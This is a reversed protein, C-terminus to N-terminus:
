IKRKRDHDLSKGQIDIVNAQRKIIPSNENKYANNYQM